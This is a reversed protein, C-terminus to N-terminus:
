LWIIRPISIFYMPNIKIWATFWFLYTLVNLSIRAIYQSNAGLVCQYFLSVITNLQYVNQVTRNFWMPVWVNLHEFTVATIWLLILKFQNSETLEFFTYSIIQSRTYGKILLFPPFLDVSRQLWINNSPVTLSVFLISNKNLKLAVFFM